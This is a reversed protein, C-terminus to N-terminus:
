KLTFSRVARVMAVKASFYKYYDTYSQNNESCNGNEFDFIMPSSNDEELKNSVWYISGVLHENNKFEILGELYLNNFIIKMENCTPLRWNEYGLYTSSNCAKMADSWLMFNDYNETMVILGSKGDSNLKAIIGGGFEQGIKLNQGNSHNIL